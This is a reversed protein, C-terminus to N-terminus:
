QNFRCTLLKWFLDIESIRRVTEYQKLLTFDGVQKFFFCSISCDGCVGGKGRAALTDRAKPAPAWTWAHRCGPTSAASALCCSCTPAALGASAGRHSEFLRTPQPVPLSEGPVCNRSTGPQLPLEKRQERETWPATFRLSSFGM